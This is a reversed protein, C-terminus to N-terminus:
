LGLTAMVEAGFEDRAHQRTIWEGDGKLRWQGDLQYTRFQLLAAPDKYVRAVTRVEAPHDVGDITEADLRIVVAEIDQKDIITDLANTLHTTSM